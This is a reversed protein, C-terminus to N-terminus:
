KTEIKQKVEKFSRKYVRNPLKITQGEQKIQPSVNCSLDIPVKFIPRIECTREINFIWSQLSTRPTGKTNGLFRALRNDFNQRVRPKLKNYAVLGFKSSPRLKIAEKLLTQYTVTKGKYSNCVDEFIVLEKSDKLSLEIKKGNELKVTQRKVEKVKNKM